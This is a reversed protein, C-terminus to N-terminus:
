RQNDCGLHSSMFSSTRSKVGFPEFAALLEPVCRHNKTVAVRSCYEIGGSGVGYLGQIYYQVPIAGWLSGEM